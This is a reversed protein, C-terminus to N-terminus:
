GTPMRALLPMRNESDASLPACKMSSQQWRPMGSSKRCFMVAEHDPAFVLRAADGLVAGLQHGRDGAGLHRLEGHDDAAAEAGAVVAHAPAGVPRAEQPHPRVRPDRHHAALLRRVHQRLDAAVAELALAPAPAGLLLRGELRRDELLVLALPMGVVRGGPEPVVADDSGASVRMTSPSPIEAASLAGIPSSRTRRRESTTPRAINSFIRIALRPSIAQRIM